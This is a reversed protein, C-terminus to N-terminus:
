WTVVNNAVIARARLVCICRMKLIVFNHLSAVDTRSRMKITGRMHIRFHKNLLFGRHEVRSCYLNKGM